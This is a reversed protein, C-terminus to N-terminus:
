KTISPITILASIGQLSYDDMIKTSVTMYDGVKVASLTTPKETVTKQTADQVVFKSGKVFNVAVIGGNNVLIVTQGSVRQVKGFVMIGNTVKSKLADALRVAALKDDPIQTVSNQTQTKSVPLKYMVGVLAGIVFIILGCVVLVLIYGKNISASSM